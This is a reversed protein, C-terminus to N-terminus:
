GKPDLIIQFGNTRDNNKLEMIDAKVLLAARFLQIRSGM